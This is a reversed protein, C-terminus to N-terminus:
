DNFKVDKEIVNADDDLKDYRVNGYEDVHAVYTGVNDPNLIKELRIEDAKEKGVDSDLRKDIWNSSMQKGDRTNPNLQASGYKSDVIIYQPSGESKYYVGDLGHHGKEDIDTITEDSIREYGKSRLDQDTKMEGYNGTELTNTRDFFKQGTEIRDIEHEQMETKEKYDIDPNEEKVTDLNYTYVSKLDSFFNPMLSPSDNNKTTEIDKTKESLFMM